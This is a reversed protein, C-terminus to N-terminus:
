SFTLMGEITFAVAVSPNTINIKLTKLMQSSPNWGTLKKTGVVDTGITYSSDSLMDITVLSSNYTLTLVTSSTLFNKYDLYLM